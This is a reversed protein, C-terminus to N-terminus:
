TSPGVHGVDPAPDDRLRPYMYGDRWQGRVFGRERSVVLLSDGTGLYGDSQWRRRRAQPDRYGRWEFPESLAPDTDFRGLLDLDHEEVPRLHIQDGHSSVLWMRSSLMKTMSM